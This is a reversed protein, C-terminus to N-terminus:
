RASYKHRPPYVDVDVQQASFLVNASSFELNELTSMFQLLRPISFMLQNFFFFPGATGSYPIGGDDIVASKGAEQSASMKVDEDGDFIPPLYSFFINLVSDDGLLHISAIHLGNGM